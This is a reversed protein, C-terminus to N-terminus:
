GQSPFVGELAIIWNVVLSPMVNDHPTSKGANAVAQPALQVPNTPPGYLVAAPGTTAALVNGGPGAATAQNSSGAAGHTHQPIQQQTLTVTESGARGGIVVGAGQHLPIRGRLDPLAFTQVGDGGYITGLLAFLAEYQAISLLSGDCLHWGVPAFNGGFIKLEGIFPDM